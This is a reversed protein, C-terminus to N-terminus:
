GGPYLRFNIEVTIMVSVPVGEKFAPKFRFKKIAEIAKLDLGPDLSRVVRPNLPKGEANVIVSIMCIGEVGRRRADDTFEPDVSKLVVPPTVKGGVRDLGPSSGSEVAGGSQGAKEPPPLPGFTQVPQATLRFVTSTAGAGGEKQAFCGQISVEVAWNVAVPQDKRAGPTFRDAGVIRLAMKELTSGDPHVPTIDRPVGGADVELSLTVKGDKEGKCTDPAMVEWETPLLKPAKVDPGVDFVKTPPPPTGAPSAPASSGAQQGAAVSAGLGILLGAVHVIRM